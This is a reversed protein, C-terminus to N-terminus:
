SLVDRRGLGAQAALAAGTGPFVLRYVALTVAACAAMEGALLPVSPPALQRLLLVASASALGAAAGPVLWAAIQLLPLELVRAALRL